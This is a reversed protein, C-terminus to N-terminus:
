PSYQNAYQIADAIPKWRSWGHNDYLQQAEASTMATGSYGVYEAHGLAKLVRKWRSNHVDDSNHDTIYVNYIKTVLAAYKVLPSEPQQVESETSDPVSGPQVGDVQGDDNDVVDAVISNSGGITYGNGQQITLTVTGDAEDDQDDTTPLSLVYTGSTPITVTRAGTTVGFNGTASVEVNVTLPSSPAPEARLTFEVPTGEYPSAAAVVNVVVETQPPPPPSSSGTFSIRATQNPHASYTKNGPAPTHAPTQEVRVFEYGPRSWPAEYGREGEIGEEGDPNRYVNAGYSWQGTAVATIYRNPGNRPNSRIPIELTASGTGSAITVRHAGQGRWDLFDASGPADRVIVEVDLNRIPAPRAEVTFTVTGSPNVPFRGGEVWVCNWCGSTPDPDNELMRVSANNSDGVNYGSGSKIGVTLLGPANVDDDLTQIWLIPKKNDTTHGNLKSPHDFGAPYFSM